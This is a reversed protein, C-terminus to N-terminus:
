RSSKHVIRCEKFIRDIRLLFKHKKATKFQESTM